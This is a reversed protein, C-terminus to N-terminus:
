PTIRRIPVYKYEPDSQNQTTTSNDVRVFFADAPRSSGSEEVQQASRVASPGEDALAVLPQFTLSGVVLGAFLAQKAIAVFNM